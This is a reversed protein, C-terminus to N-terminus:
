WFKVSNAAGGQAGILRHWPEPVTGPRNWSGPWVDDLEHVFNALLQARGAAARRSWPLLLKSILLTTGGTGENLRQVETTVRLHVHAFRLGAKLGM